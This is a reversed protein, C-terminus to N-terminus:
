ILGSCKEFKRTGKAKAVERRAEQEWDFNPRVDAGWQGCATSHSCKYDSCYILLARVGSARMEAFTIKQLSTLEPM